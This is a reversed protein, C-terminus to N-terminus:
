EGGVRKALEAIRLRARWLSESREAACIPNWHNKVVDVLRANYGLGQRAVSGAEKVLDLRVAKSAKKALALLHQKPDPLADPTSPLRTKDGLLTRMAHHDALLWSEVERVAVRLVLNAPRSANLWDNLLIVPCALRDLDTIILVPQLAALQKWKDMGSKLYGFGSRRLLLGPQLTSAHEQLLRLGVAESLEDETGLAVSVM